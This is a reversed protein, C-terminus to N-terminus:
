QQHHLWTARSFSSCSVPLTVVSSRAPVTGKESFHNLIMLATRDAERVPRPPRLLQGGAKWRSWLTVYRQRVLQELNNRVRGHCAAVVELIGVTAGCTLAEHVMSVSDGTVWITASRSMECPLWDRSTNECLVLKSPLEAKRWMSQFEAPTRLSTAVTWDIDADRTVVQSVQDLVHSSSWVVHKSPGGILILGKGPDQAYSPQLRTIAGDIRIVNSAGLWLRDHSPILCLDFLAKPLSPKMVVVTRGGFRRKLALLPLHTKHGAGILLDPRPSDSLFETNSIWLSGIGRLSKSIAIDLMRCDTLRDIAESLGIVQNEHGPRGDLLRWIVTNQKRDM